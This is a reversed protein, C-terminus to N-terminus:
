EDEEEARAVIGNVIDQLIGRVEENTKGELGSVRMDKEFRLGTTIASLARRRTDFIGRAVLLDAYDRRLRTVETKSLGGEGEAPLVRERLRAEPDPIEEQVRRTPFIDAGLEGVFTKSLDKTLNKVARKRTMPDTEDTTQLWASLVAYIRMLKSYQSKTIPDPEDSYIGATDRASKAVDRMTEVYVSLEQPTFQDGYKLINQYLKNLSEGKLIDASFDGATYRDFLEELTLEIAIKEASDETMQLDTPPVQGAQSPMGEAIAQAMQELQEGRKLLQQRGYQAGPLTRFGGGSGIMASPIGYGTNGNLNTPMAFSGQPQPKPMRNRYFSTRLLEQSNAIGREKNTVQERAMRMGEAHFANEGFMPMAFRPKIALPSKVYGKPLGLTASPFTNPAYM